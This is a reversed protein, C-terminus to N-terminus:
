IRGSRTSCAATSITPIPPTPWCPASGSRIMSFLSKNHWLTNDGDFGITDIMIFAM